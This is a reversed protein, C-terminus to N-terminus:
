VAEEFGSDIRDIHSEWFIREESKQTNEDRLKEFKINAWLAMTSVLEDLNDVYGRIIQPETALIDQSSLLNTRYQQIAPLYEEEAESFQISKVNQKLSVIYLITEYAKSIRKENLKWFVEKDGIGYSVNSHHIMSM